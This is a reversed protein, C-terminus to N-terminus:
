RDKQRKGDRRGRKPCRKIYPLVNSVPTRPFGAAVRLTSRSSSSSSLSGAPFASQLIAPTSFARFLRFPPCRSPSSSRCLSSLLFHSLSPGSLSAVADRSPVSTSSLRCVLLCVREPRLLVRAAASSFTTFLSLSLIVLSVSNYFYSSPLSFQWFFLSM